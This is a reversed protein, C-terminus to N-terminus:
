AAVEGVGTAGRVGRDFDVVLRLIRTEHVLHSSLEGREGRLTRVRRPHGVLDSADDCQGGPLPREPHM